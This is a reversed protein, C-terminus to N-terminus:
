LRVVNSADIGRTVGRLDLTLAAERAVEAHDIGPHATVIVVLDSEALAGDLEQSRLGHEPLEPVFPDHYYIEAGHRRLLEILKLAPSERLNGVGPKYAVGLILIRAAKVARGADNLAEVVLQEVFYPEAQNVKGALEIFEAPFDYERAKWALYFPDVPLCHGGWERGRISACSGSRSPRPPAWWRGSTSGWETPSSRWSTSWRSTSRASSSRWCSPWSAGEPSSVQVIEDCVAGYLAEAREACAPTLGGVIRPTNQITYDRSGPDVREPSYALNFGEGAKLGSEELAPLLHERTTGPYTTSELVVLQGERLVGALAETAAMLLTLDPERQPTLPTPVCLLVADADRLAGYNTDFTLRDAVAQLQEDPIGEIHSSGVRLTKIREFDIDVGIAPTGAEAFAVALSLGVYGLGVIGVTM